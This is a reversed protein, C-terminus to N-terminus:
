KPKKIYNRMVIYLIACLSVFLFMGHTHHWKVVAIIHIAKFWGWIQLAIRTKLEGNHYSYRILNILLFCMTSILVIFSALYAPPWGYILTM